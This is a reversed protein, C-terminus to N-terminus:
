IHDEILFFILFNATLFGWELFLLFITTIQFFSLVNVKLNCYNCPHMNRIRKPLCPGPRSWIEKFLISTVQLICEPENATCNGHSTSKAESTRWISQQRLRLTEARCDTTASEIWHHLDHYVSSILGLLTSVATLHKQIDHTVTRQIKQDHYNLECYLEDVYFLFHLNLM